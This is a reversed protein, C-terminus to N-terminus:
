HFEHISAEGLNGGTREKKWGLGCPFTGSATVVVAGLSLAEHFIVLDEWRDEEIRM